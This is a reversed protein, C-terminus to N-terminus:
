VFPNLQGLLRLILSNEFLQADLVPLAGGTIMMISWAACYVLFLDVCGAAAGLAAGLGKNMKGALPIGNAHVLLGTLMSILFRALTFVVFFLVMSILPVFIPELVLNVVSQAANAATKDLAGSVGSILQNLFSDPLFSGYKRALEAIDLGNESISKMVNSELGPRLLNDFLPQAYSRSVFSAGAVSVISGVLSVIDALFGRHMYRLVVVAFLAILILDCIWAPTITM